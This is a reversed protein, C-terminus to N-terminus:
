PILLECDIADALEDSIGSGLKRVFFKESAMVEPLDDRRFIKSAAPQVIHLNGLRSLDQTYPEPAQVHESNGLVTHFFIEDPAWCHRMYSLLEPSEKSFRLAYNAAAPTLAWWQSGFCPILGPFRERFGINLSRGALYAGKRIARSTVDFMKSQIKSDLPRRFHWRAVRRLASEPGELLDVYKIENGAPRQGFYQRLREVPKIPYCSGSLLVLRLYDDQSALANEILLLTAHVVSVDAWQVAIRPQIIRVNPALPVTFFCDPTKRDIHIFIDDDTGLAACLRALQHPDSHGLILFAIKRAM